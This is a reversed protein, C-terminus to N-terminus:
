GNMCCNPHSEIVCEYLILWHQHVSPNSIQFAFWPLNYTKKRTTANMPIFTEKLIRCHSNRVDTSVNWITTANISMPRLIIYTSTASAITAVIGILFIGDYDVPQSIQPQHRTTECSFTIDSNCWMPKTPWRSSCVLSGYSGCDFHCFRSNFRIAVSWGCLYILSCMIVISISPLLNHIGFTYTYLTTIM